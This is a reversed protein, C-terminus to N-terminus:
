NYSDLFESKSRLLCLIETIQNKMDANQNKIEANQKKTMEIQKELNEIKSRRLEEGRAVNAEDRDRKTEVPGFFLFEKLELPWLLGFTVSGLIFIVVVLIIGLVFHMYSIIRGCLSRGIHFHNRDDDVLADYKLGFLICIFVDGPLLLEGVSAYTYYYWLRTSLPPRDMECMWSYYWWKFFTQKDKEPCKTMMWEDDYKAFSNRGIIQRESKMKTIDRESLKPGSIPTNTSSSNFCLMKRITCIEIMFSMRAKWFADESLSKVEDFVSSVVGILINLLLIGVIIAFMASVVIQQNGVMQSLHDEDGSDGKVVSEWDLFKFETTLLM